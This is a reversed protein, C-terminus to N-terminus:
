PQEASALQETLVLAMYADKRKETPPSVEVYVTGRAQGKSRGLVKLPSRSLEGLGTVLTKIAIRWM